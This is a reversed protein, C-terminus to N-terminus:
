YRRARNISQLVDNLLNPDVNRYIPANKNFPSFSRIKNHLNTFPNVSKAGGFRGILINELGKAQAKTLNNDKLIVQKFAGLSDSSAHKALRAHVDGRGIYRVNGADDLLAYLGQGTQKNYLQGTGGTVPRPGKYSIKVNGLNSGLGRVQVDWNRYNLVNRVKQGFGAMGRGPRVVSESKDWVGKDDYRCEGDYLHALARIKWILNQIPLASMRDADYYYIEKSSAKKQTSKLNVEPSLTKEMQRCSALAGPSSSTILTQDCSILTKKPSAVLSFFTSFTFLVTLLFHGKKM